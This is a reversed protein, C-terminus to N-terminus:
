GFVEIAAILRLREEDIQARGYADMLRQRYRDTKLNHQFTWMAWFLDVHRDGVGGSDLDVFGSFSWRNLIINPLCYDGHLLTSTELLHGKTKVIRYAEEPTSYGWVQPFLAVDHHGAQHNQHATSLYHETHNPIPCDAHDTAHLLALREALADCLREPEELYQRAICDEGPLRQTLLWDRDDRLYEVVQPALGKGHFYRTLQAERDLAGLPARKLFYGGDRDIFLVQAAPSCSSDYGRAYRLYGHLQQPYEALDIKVPTLRM